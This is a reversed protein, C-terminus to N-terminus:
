RMGGSMRTYYGQVVRDIVMACFLIALGAVIGQGKAAYQLAELVNKGLGGAGILSAIVVMSLCMLITQNIGAMISPMALPIEVDRLLMAKSCGFARAAEKTTEPVQRMGLATLRIVPPMGFIITALVGPPKGTGFFAIIPILYVFAPMTQMFDLVPLAAGYARPSKGFWIGLPIGMVVCLLAAAGLLSVTVMSVEWLGLFALYGLAAATFIAVRFGALRFAVVVIVLMVVPWPTQVLVVELGDLVARIGGTIGDFVGSGSVALWDFWGELWNSIPSFYEKSIPFKTIWVYPDSVTFRYLTLPAIGAILLAGYFVRLLSFGSTTTSDARWRLYQREYLMNGYFGEGIRFLLLLIIGTMLVVTTEAAAANAQQQAQEAARTLNEAVKLATDATVQDGAELAQRAEEQRAAVISQLRDYRARLDAGLDGWLGRGLQVLAFLELVLFLWFYGWMGRAAGWFPGALFAMSNWSWPFKTASEIRTFERVYYDSRAGVFSGVSASLDLSEAKPASTTEPVNM